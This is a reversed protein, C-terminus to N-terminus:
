RWYNHRQDRFAIPGQLVGARVHLALAGSDATNAIESNFSRYRNLVAKAPHGFRNRYGSSVIVIEPNVSKLFPWSSSTASGHHPSLLVTSELEAQQALLALESEREIDGTLLFSLGASSIKLVCSRNNANAPQKTKTTIFEFFVGDWHWRERQHCSGATDGLGPLLEGYDIQEVAISDVFQSWGGAHDNDGHSLVLRDVLRIGRYRLYPRVVATATAFDTGLAPGLDYVLHHHQTSVVVALGQGVDLVTLDLDGPQLSAPRYFLLPALLLLGLYRCPFGRPLLLLLSALAALVLVSWPRASLSILADAGLTNFSQLFGMAMALLQDVAQWLMLAWASSIFQLLVATLIAPVVLLTFLPIMLLNALPSLWSIQGLLFVLPTLMAVFVVWQPLLFANFIRGRINEAQRRGIMAYLIGGVAIFSLWFSMSIVALPDHLLCLLLATLLGFLASINRRMVLVLLLVSLMILARQTPLTFGAALAYSTAAMMAILAAWRDARALRCANAVRRSLGFLLGGVLGVHLGSIVMLHTTGTNAFVQWQATSIGRRDGILLARILGGQSLKPLHRIFEAARWRWFDITQHHALLRNDAHERVYGLGGIGRQVLWAEYDFSGPNAMGRPSKLKVRLQWRQGPLVEMDGYWKMRLKGLGIHCNGGDQPCVPGEVALEFRSAPQGNIVTIEPLGIVQGQLLLERQELAPPLRKAIIQYGYVTGWIAGTSLALWGGILLILWSNHQHPCLASGVKFHIASLLIPIAVSLLLLTSLSLLVPLQSIVAVGLSLLFMGKLM